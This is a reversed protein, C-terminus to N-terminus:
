IKDLLKKNKKGPKLKKIIICFCIVFDFKNADGINYAM